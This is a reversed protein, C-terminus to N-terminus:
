LSKDVIFGPYIKKKTKIKNHDGPKGQWEGTQTHTGFFFHLRDDISEGPPNLGCSSTAILSASYM